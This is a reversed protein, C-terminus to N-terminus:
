REMAHTKHKTKPSVATMVAEEAKEPPHERAKIVQRVLNIFGDLVAPHSEVVYSDRRDFGMDNTADPFDFTFAWDKFLTVLWDFREAYEKFTSLHM